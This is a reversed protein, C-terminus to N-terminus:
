EIDILVPAGGGAGCGWVPQALFSVDGSPASYYLEFNQGPDADVVGLLIGTEGPRLSLSTEPRAEPLSWAAVAILLSAGTDDIAIFSSPAVVVNGGGGVGRALVSFTATDCPLRTTLSAVVDGTDGSIPVTETEPHYPSGFSFFDLEYEWPEKGTANYVAAPVIISQLYLSEGPVIENCTLRVAFKERGEPMDVTLVVNAVDTHIQPPGGEESLDEIELVSPDAYLGDMAVGLCESTTVGPAQFAWLDLDVEGDSLLIWDGEPDSSTGEDVASWTDADWFFFYGTHDGYFLELLDDAANTTAPSLVSPILVALVAVIALLRRTWGRGTGM